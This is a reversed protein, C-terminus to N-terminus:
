HVAASQAHEAKQLLRGLLMVAAGVVQVIPELLQAELECLVGPRGQASYNWRNRREGQCSKDHAVAEIPGNEWQLRM